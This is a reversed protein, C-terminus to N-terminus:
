GFLKEKFVFAYDFINYSRFVCNVHHNTIRRKELLFTLSQRIHDITLMVRCSSLVGEEKSEISFAERNPIDLITAAQYPQCAIKSFDLLKQNNLLLCPIETQQFKPLYRL